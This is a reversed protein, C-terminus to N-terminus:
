RRSSAILTQIVREAGQNILQAFQRGTKEFAKRVIFQPKTGPHVVVKAVFNFNGRALAGPRGSIHRSVASASSVPGRGGTRWRLVKRNQGPVGSKPINHRRSGQDVSASYDATNRVRVNGSDDPRVSWRRAMNGTRGQGKTPTEEVLARHFVPSYSRAAERKVQLAYEDGLRRSIEALATSEVKVSYL